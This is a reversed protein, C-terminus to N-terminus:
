KAVQELLIGAQLLKRCISQGGLIHASPSLLVQLALSTTPKATAAVHKYADCVPQGYAAHLRFSGAEATRQAAPRMRMCVSSLPQRCAAALCGPAAATATFSDAATRALLCASVSGHAAKVQWSLAASVLRFVAWCPAPDSVRLLRSTFHQVPRAHFPSIAERGHLWWSGGCCAGALVLAVFNVLLVLGLCTATRMSGTRMSCGAECDLVCAMALQVLLHMGAMCAWLVGALLAHRLM